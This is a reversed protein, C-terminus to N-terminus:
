TNWNTCRIHITVPITGDHTAQEDQWWIPLKTQQEKQSGWLKNAGGAMEVEVEVWHGTPVSYGTDGAGLYHELCECPSLYHTLTGYLYNNHAFLRFTSSVYSTSGSVATERLTRGLMGNLRLVPLESFLAAKSLKGNSFDNAHVVLLFSSQM